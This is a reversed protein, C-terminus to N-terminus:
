RQQFQERRQCFHTIVVVPANLAAPKQAILNSVFRLFGGLKPSPYACNKRRYTRPIIILRCLFNKGLRQRLRHM